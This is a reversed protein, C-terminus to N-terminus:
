MTPQGSSVRRRIIVWPQDLDMEPKDSEFRHSIFYALPTLFGSGKNKLTDLAEIEGADRRSTATCGEVCSGGKPRADALGDLAVQANAVANGHATRHKGFDALLVFKLGESLLDSVAL